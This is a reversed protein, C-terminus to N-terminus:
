STKVITMFIVKPFSQALFVRQITLPFSMPLTSLHQHMDLICRDFARMVAFTNSAPPEPRQKDPRQGHEAFARSVAKTQRCTLWAAAKVRQQPGKKQAQLALRKRSCQLHLSHLYPLWFADHSCMCAMGGYRRSWVGTNGHQCSGLDSSDSDKLWISKKNNGQWVTSENTIKGNWQWQGVLLSPDCNCWTDSCEKMPLQVSSNMEAFRHKIAIVADYSWKQSDYWNIDLVTWSQMPWCAECVTTYPLVHQLLARSVTLQYLLANSVTLCCHHRM